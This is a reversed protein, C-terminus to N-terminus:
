WGREGLPKAIEETCMGVLADVLLAGEVGEPAFVSGLCQDSTLDPWGLRGGPLRLHCRIDREVAIGTPIQFFYAARARVRDPRSEVAPGTTPAPPTGDRSREAPRPHSSALAGSRPRECCLPSRVHFLVDARARRFRQSLFRRTPRPALSNIIKANRRSLLILEGALAPPPTRCPTRRSSSRWFEGAQRDSARMAPANASTSRAIM